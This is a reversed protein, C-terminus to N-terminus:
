HQICQSRVGSDALDDPLCSNLLDIISYTTTLYISTICCKRTLIGHFIASTAQTKVTNARANKIGHRLFYLPWCEFIM